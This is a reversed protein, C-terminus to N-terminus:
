ARNDRTYLNVSQQIALVQSNFPQTGAVVSAFIRVNRIELGTMRLGHFTKYRFEPTETDSATEVSSHKHQM